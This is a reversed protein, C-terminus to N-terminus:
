CVFRGAQLWSEYTRLRTTRSPCFFTDTHLARIARKAVGKMGALDIASAELLHEKLDHMIHYDLHLRAALSAIHADDWHGSLALPRIVRYFAEQLDIFLVATPQNRDKFIRLFARILHGGLSVSVGKRGGLQQAHLYSHYLDSQKSRMAKHLTKGVMSSILISRFAGCVDKSLKGKWIPVLFGGKHALPEQGQLYVKLMLSYLTRAMSRPCHRLLESPIRDMGSAKGAAVQRCAHELEALSPVESIEVEFNTCSLTVLNERWLERQQKEDVREGGEMESSFALGAIWPRRSHPALFDKQM